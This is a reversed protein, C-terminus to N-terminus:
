PWESATGVASPSCRRFGPAIEEGIFFAELGLRDVVAGSTEGGAIILRRVGRAVLAEAIAAM